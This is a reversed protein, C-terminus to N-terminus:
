LAGEADHKALECTQFFDALFSIPSVDPGLYDNANV